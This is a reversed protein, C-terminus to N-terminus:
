PLNEPELVMAAAGLLGAHPHAILCTPVTRMLAAHRGKGEFRQRFGGRQLRPLLKQAVGGHLYVGQWAGFALAVDGAFAGLMACVRDLAQAALGAPDAEAQASVEEPTAPQPALGAIERLAQYVNAIGMGSVLRETSVRGHRASLLRLIDEEVADAPAFALHGGESEIVSFREREVILGSVGLGTGPGLVAYAQRPGAAPVLAPGVAVVDADRLLPLARSVAAFDNVVRLPLGLGAATERVSFAWPNNTIRVRDGPVPAAVALLARHPRADTHRLFHAAAEALGPFDACCLRTVGELRPLGDTGMAALAFRANTGGIDGVLQYASTVDM